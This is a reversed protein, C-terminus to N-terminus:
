AGKKTISLDRKVETRKSGKDTLVVIAVNAVILFITLGIYLGYKRLNFTDTSQM